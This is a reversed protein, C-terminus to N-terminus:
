RTGPATEKEAILAQFAAEDQDTYIYKNFGLIYILVLGIAGLWTGYMQWASAIPFGMFYATDGTALFDQHGFYTQWWVLFMFGYCAALYVYFTKSRYRASVGLACLCCILLLLLAQFLFAYGGIVELRAQGDGGVQMGAITPHPAGSAGPAQEAFLIALLLAGMALCLAFILAILRNTM